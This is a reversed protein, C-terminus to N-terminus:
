RCSICVAAYMTQLPQTNSEKTVGFDRVLGQNFEDDNDYKHWHYEGQMVGLRVGASFSVPTV